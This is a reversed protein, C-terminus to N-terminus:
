LRRGDRNKPSLRDDLVDVLSRITREFAAHQDQVLKDRSERDDRITRLLTPIVKALLYYMTWALIILAGGQLMAPGAWPSLDCGSSQLRGMTALVVVAAVTFVTTSLAMVSTIATYM